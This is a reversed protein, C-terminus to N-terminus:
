NQNFAPMIAGLIFNFKETPKIFELICCSACFQLVFQMEFKTDFQKRM